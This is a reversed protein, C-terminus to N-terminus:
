DTALVEPYADDGRTASARAGHEATACPIGTRHRRMLAEAGDSFAGQPLPDPGPRSVGSAQTCPVSHSLPSGVADRVPSGRPHGQVRPRARVSQPVPQSRASLNLPLNRGLQPMCVSFLGVPQVPCM